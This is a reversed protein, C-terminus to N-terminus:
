QWGTMLMIDGEWGASRTYLLWREDSSVAIGLGGLPAPAGSLARVVHTRRSDFDYFRVEPSRATTQTFYIGRAGATWSDSYSLHPMGQLESEAGGAAPKTWLEVGSSGAVNFIVRPGSVVARYAPKATFLEATGGATPIRYLRTRGDSAFIWRCDVSWAPMALNAISAELRHPRGELIDIIYIASAGSARSDFAIRRGDSCWSPAGTLPGDFSTIRAPASGQADAVWIESSGSRTSQFAIQAGDPSYQPVLQMRTSDLLARGAAGPDTLDIRWIDISRRERVFAIRGSTVALGPGLAEETGPARSLQGNPSLRWLASGDAADNVLMLADGSSTWALGKPSGQLTALRRPAGSPLGTLYVDHVARSSTCSYALQQGDPSFAPLAADTCSEPREVSRARSDNLTLLHIASRGEPDLAAYALLRDDPSWSLQMFDEDLFTARALLTEPGGTSSVRYIGSDRDAIRAFALQRGDRSWSAAIAIGNPAILELTRESDLSKVYLGFRRDAAAGGNWGFAVKTGDPSFTPAVERGVLSTSPQVRINASTHTDLARVGYLSALAALGLVGVLVFAWPQTMGSRRPARLTAPQPNPEGARDDTTAPAERRAHPPDAPLTAPPEEVSTTAPQKELPVAPQPEDMGAPPDDITASPCAQVAAVFRYGRRPLTEIFKANVASDGLAERLRNIIANLGQEFEVVRKDPWLRARLADRSILEGPRELFATLALFSQNPLPIRRGEEFLEGSRLDAEFTGFRVRARSDSASTM